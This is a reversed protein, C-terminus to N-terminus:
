EWKRLIFYPVLLLSLVVIGSYLLAELPVSYTVDSDKIRIIVMVMLSLPSELSGIEMTLSHNGKYNTQFEFDFTEEMMGQFFSFTQGEPNKLSVNLPLYSHVQFPTILFLNILCADNKELMFSAEERSDNPLFRFAQTQIIRGSIKLNECIEGIAQVQIWFNITEKTEFEIVLSHAGTFTAGFLITKLDSTIPGSYLHYEFRDPDIISINTQCHHPSVVEFSLEYYWKEQFCLADIILLNGPPIITHIENYIISTEQSRSIFTTQISGLIMM